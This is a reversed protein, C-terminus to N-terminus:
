LERDCPPVGVTTDAGLPLQDPVFEREVIRIETITSLNLLLMTVSGEGIACYEAQGGFVFGRWVYTDPGTQVLEGSALSDRWDPGPSPGVIGPNPVRELGVSIGGDTTYFPSRTAIQVARGDFFSIALTGGADAFTLTSGSRGRSTWSRRAQPEGYADLAEDESMGISASGIARGIVIAGGEGSPEGLSAREGGDGRYLVVAAAVAAASAAVVAVALAARAADLRRGRVSRAKSPRPTAAAGDRAVVEYLRWREPFGKLRFRGRDRFGVGLVTGALQRVAESVLIEGGRAEGAVRAAGNVAAGFPHGGEEIVEGVNLGVRLRLRADPREDNYRAVAAQIAIACAVARRTSTFAVMFGDGIQDIERGEHRGVQERVLRRQADILERAVADGRETTLDTFGEVDTFMVTVIGERLQEVSL